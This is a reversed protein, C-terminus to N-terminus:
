QDAMHSHHVPQSLAVNFLATVVCEPEVTNTLECSQLRIEGEEYRVIGM